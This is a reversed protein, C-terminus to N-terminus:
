YPLRNLSSWFHLLRPLMELYGQYDDPKVVYANAGLDYTGVIDRPEESSTFVVVPIHRTQDDGKLTRLVQAGSIKPLRLDLLVVKPRDERRREAHAGRAFLFDLAEAGDRVAFIRDALGHKRAARLVFEVDSPEDEVLLVEVGTLDPM